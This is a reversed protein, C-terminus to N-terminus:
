GLNGPHGSATVALTTFIATSPSVPRGEGSRSRAPLDQVPLRCLSKGEIDLWDAREAAEALGRNPRGGALAREPADPDREIVALARAPVRRGREWEPAAEACGM